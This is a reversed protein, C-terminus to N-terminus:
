RNRWGFWALYVFGVLPVIFSVKLSAVDGVIGQLPPLLAGGAIMAVLLASALPVDEKMGRIALAFINSWMISNFLGVGLVSYLALNGSATMTIILLLINGVAFGGLLIGPKKPLLFFAILNVAIISSLGIAVSTEYLSTTESVIFIVGIAVAALMGMAGYRPPGETRLAMSGLFRGLMASGWYLSVFFGGQSVPLNISPESEFYNVLVSGVAIEAGVYFFIALMSFGFAPYKKLFGGVDSLRAVSGVSLNPLQLRSFALAMIGLIGALILYPLQVTSLGSDGTQQLILVTGVLPALVHGLSNFGQALNLRSAGSEEPGVAIVYPNAAVQLITIGTALVFLGVLFLWFQAVQAAPIFILCGVAMASLGVVIGKQYGLRQIISGSPFSMILYAIFFFLQVFQALWNPLDFNDKFYPVLIDNLSTLLGWLFFLSILSVLTGTRTSSTQM